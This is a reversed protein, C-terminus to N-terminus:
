WHGRFTYLVTAQQRPLDDRLLYPREEHDILRLDPVAHKTVMVM